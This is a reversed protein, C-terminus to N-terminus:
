DRMRSSNGQFKSGADQLTPFPLRSWLQFESEVADATFEAVTSPVDSTM